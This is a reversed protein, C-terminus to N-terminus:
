LGVVARSGTDYSRAATFWGRLPELDGFLGVAAARRDEPVKLALSVHPVWAEPAPWRDGGDLAAWVQEQLRLLAPAPRVELVLARGLMRVPGLEAEVPLTLPPLGALSAASLLTLHPRNTPHRHTDLSPLGAASLRRWSARVEAELREDLLLEVTHM